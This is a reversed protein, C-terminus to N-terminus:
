LFLPHCGMRAVCSRMAKNERKRCHLETYGPSNSRVRRSCRDELKMRHREWATGARDANTRNCIGEFVELFRPWLAVGDHGYQEECLAVVRNRGGRRNLLGLSSLDRHAQVLQGLDKVATLIVVFELATPLDCTSTQMRICQFSSTAYYYVGGRKGTFSHICRNQGSRKSRKRRSPLAEAGALHRADELAPATCPEAPLDLARCSTEESCDSVSSGADLLDETEEENVAQLHKPSRPLIESCGETEHHDAPGTSSTWTEPQRVLRLSSSPLM